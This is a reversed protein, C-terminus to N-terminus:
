SKGRSTRREGCESKTGVVCSYRDGKEVRSGSEVRMIMMVCIPFTEQEGDQIVGVMHTMRSCNHGQSACKTVDHGLASFFSGKNEKDCM